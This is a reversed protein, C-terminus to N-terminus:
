KSLKSYRLLIFHGFQIDGNNGKAQAEVENPRGDAAEAGHDIHMQLMPMELLPVFGPFPWIRKSKCMEM